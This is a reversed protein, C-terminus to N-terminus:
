RALLYIALWQFFAATVVFAHWVEHYGFTSPWPNPRQVAFIIAGVTYLIGGIALFVLEVRSMAGIFAPPHVVLMWGAGLYVAGVVWRPADFWCMRIVIGVAAIGWMLALLVVRTAGSMGLVIVATYTGAIAVLITSHDLRRLLRRESSSLRPAHYIGSVTLMALVCIGYIITAARQGGTQARVALLVTLFIGVPVASRHLAGRLAPRPAATTVAANVAGTM